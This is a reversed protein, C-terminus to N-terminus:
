IAAHTDYWGVKLVRTAFKNYLYQGYKSRWLISEDGVLRYRLFKRRYSKLAKRESMWEGPLENGFLGSSGKEFRHDVYRGEAPPNPCRQEPVTRQQILKFKSYGLERFVAFEELADAWRVTASEISVYRPRSRFLKLAYLCLLDSGEIDIKLYYPIGHEALVDGFRIGNVTVQDSPAGFLENRKAWNECATGYVSIRQNVFFTIPDARDAIAANILTLQGSKLYSSLRVRIDECLAPVAEIAVVRFGKLLYFETDEGKHAGVDYILDSRMATWSIIPQVQEEWRAHCETVRPM